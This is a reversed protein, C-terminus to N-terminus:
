SFIHISFITDLLSKAAIEDYAESVETLRVKLLDNVIKMADLYTIRRAHLEEKEKVFSCDNLSVLTM